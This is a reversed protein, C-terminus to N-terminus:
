NFRYQAGAVISIFQLDQLGNSSDQIELPWNYTTELNLVVNRLLHFDLGAGLRGLFERESQDAEVDLAGIGGIGYPQFRGELPYGKLNASLAWGGFPKRNQRLANSEFGEYYQFDMDVAVWRGTRYGVRFDLGLADRNDGFNQIGYAWGLGISWGSRAYDPAGGEQEGAQALAAGPVLIFVLLAIGERALVHPFRAGWCGLSRVSSLRGQRM